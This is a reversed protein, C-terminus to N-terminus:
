EEGVSISVTSKYDDDSENIGITVAYNGLKGTRMYGGGADIKTLNEADKIINLYYDYVEKKEKNSGMAIIYMKKNDNSTDMASIVKAGDIIPIVDKPYGEPLDVGEESISLNADGDESKINVSNDDVELNAEGDKTKVKVNNKDIEVTGDETEIKAKKNCGIFSFVIICVIALIIIKKM